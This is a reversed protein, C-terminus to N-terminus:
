SGLVFIVLGVILMILAVAFLLPLLLVIDVAALGGLALLTAASNRLNPHNEWQRLGAEAGVARPANRGEDPYRFVGLSGRWSNIERACCMICRHARGCPGSASGFCLDCALESAHHLTQRPLEGFREAYYAPFRGLHGFGFDLATATISAAPNARLRENVADLRLNRLLEM